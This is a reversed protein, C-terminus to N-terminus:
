SEFTKKMIRMEGIGSEHKRIWPGTVNPDNDETRCLEIFHAPLM